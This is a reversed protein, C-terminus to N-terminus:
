AENKAFDLVTLNGSKINYVPLQCPSPIHGMRIQYDTRDQWTGSNIIMVGRYDAYGNKHVHGFHFVDPVESITMEDRKTPIVPKEGYIPSLHRRRLMEIGVKEPNLYGGRLHPMSAIMTDISTGHYMLVKLGHITVFSPNTVFTINKRDSVNKICEAPLIPQPEANRVADHNGPCVVIEVHQPIKKLLDCFIEYQVYIDKTSLQKEQGPYVGIGDVLDGAILVYKIRSAIERKQEDCEGNLFSLFREFQEHLFYKSGVHLDSLFAISAEQSALKKDRLPIEPWLVDDVIFLSKALRGELAITEDLIIQEAQDLLQRPANKPIFCPLEEEVDEVLLFTGGNKAERKESVMGFVRRREPRGGEAKLRRISVVPIAASRLDLFASTQEFRNKFFSVFDTLGGACKAEADVNRVTFEAAVQKALAEFGRPKELLDTQGAKLASAQQEALEDVLTYSVVFEGKEEALVIAKELIEEPTPLVVLRKLADPSIALDRKFALELLSKEDAVFGGM